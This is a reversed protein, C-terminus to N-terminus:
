RIIQVKRTLIGQETIIKLFYMGPQLNSVDMTTQPANISIQKVKQGMTNYLYAEKIPTNKNDITLYDNVPNPYLALNELDNYRQIGNEETFKFTAEMRALNIVSDSYFSDRSSWNIVLNLTWHDIKDSTIGTNNKVQPYLKDKVYIPSILRYIVNLNPPIDLEIKFSYYCSVKYIIGTDVYANLIAYVSAKENLFFTDNSVNTIKYAFYVPDYIDININKGELTDLKDEDMIHYLGTIKFKLTDNYKLSDIQGWSYVNPLIFLIILLKIKM